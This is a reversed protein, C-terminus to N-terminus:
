LRRSGMRGSSASASASSDRRPFRAFSPSCNPAITGPSETRRTESTLTWVGRRSADILGAKVLYFRAWAIQNRVRSQGNSTTEEQETEQIKCREIVRDAVEAAGGSAGLDRLVDVIPIVFRLFAPGRAKKDSRRTKSSM